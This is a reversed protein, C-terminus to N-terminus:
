RREFLGSRRMADISGASLSAAQVAPDEGSPRSARMSWIERGSATDILSTQVGYATMPRGAGIPISISGGIGVGVGVGRGIGVGMGMMPRPAYPDQASVNLASLITADAGADRAAQNVAEVGARPDLAAPPMMPIVGVDILGRALHDECVRALGADPARCFVLVKRDRLSRQAFAPDIWQGEIRSPAPTTACGTIALLPLVLLARILNM